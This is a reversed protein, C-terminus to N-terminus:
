INYFKQIKEKNSISILVKRGSNVTEIGIGLDRLKKVYVRASIVSINLKKSITEYDLPISSDYLLNLIQRQTNNLTNKQESSEPQSFHELKQHEVAGLEHVKKELEEIKDHLREINMSSYHTKISQLLQKNFLVFDQRINTYLNKELAAMEKKLQKNSEHLYNIWEGVNELHSKHSKLHGHVDDKHGKLDDYIHKIWKAQEEIDEKVKTFSEKVNEKLSSLMHREEKVIGLFELVGM